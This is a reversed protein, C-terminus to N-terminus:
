IHGEPERLRDQKHVCFSSTSPISMECAVAVPAPDGCVPARAGSLVGRLIVWPAELAIGTHGSETDHCGLTPEKRRSVEVEVETKGEQSYKGMMEEVHIKDSPRVRPFTM